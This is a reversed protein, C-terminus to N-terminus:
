TQCGSRHASAGGQAMLCQQCVTTPSALCSNVLVAHIVNNAYCIFPQKTVFCVCVYNVAVNDSLLTCSNIPQTSVARCCLLTPAISHRKDFYFWLYRFDRPQHRRRKNAFM